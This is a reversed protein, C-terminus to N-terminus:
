LFPHVPPLLPFGSIVSVQGAGGIMWPAKVNDATGWCHGMGPVQFYRFFDDINGMKERTREYYM